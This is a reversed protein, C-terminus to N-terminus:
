RRWTLGSSLWLAGAVRSSMPQPPPSTGTMIARQAARADRRALEVGALQRWVQENEPQRAAAELLRKRAGVLDHRRLAIAAEALPGEVSLPNLTSAVRAQNAARRLDAGSPRDPVGALADGAMSDSIAPLAASLGVCFLVLSGAVVGLVRLPANRLGRMPRQFPAYRGALVGLFVMAPLTVGPIDWDWDVM